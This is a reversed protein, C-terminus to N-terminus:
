IQTSGNNGGVADLNVAEEDKMMDMERQVDNVISLNSLRTEESVMGKLKGTTEAEQSLEVPVNRDFTIRISEWQISFGKAQWASALVQFMRRLGKTFKREHIAAKNELALLKWKRAEGTMASGSFKEDSMDVTASFRYINERLTQKHHEWFGDNIDKTLFKADSNEPLGFAGTARALAVTEATIEVGMFAMYAQRFEEVENQADSLSRDYADILSEVKRFEPIREDNNVFEVIPMYSFLHPTPPNESDEVFTTADVQTFWYVKTDDYLEVEYSGDPKQSYLFAYHENIYIVQWPFLNSISPNGATDVYCLRFGNGMIKSRKSTEADLDAIENRLKFM